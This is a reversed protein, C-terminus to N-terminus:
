MLRIAGGHGISIHMGYIVKIRCLTQRLSALSIIGTMRYIYSLEHSSGVEPFLDKLKEIKPVFNSNKIIRM